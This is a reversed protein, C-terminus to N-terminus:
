SSFFAKYFTLQQSIKEYGMLALQKFITANPLCDVGEEDELQLDRRVISETIIVKKEDVLDLILELEMEFLKGVILRVSKKAKRVETTSNAVVTNNKKCMFIRKSLLSSTSVFQIRTDLVLVCKEFMFNTTKLHLFYMLSGIMSRYMHVDVEKGDEDQLHLILSVQITTDLNNMDAEVGDDEDDRTFDFVSYDELGPMNPDYPLEISTKEGVVNVKNTSTANVTNHRKGDDRLPKSAMM